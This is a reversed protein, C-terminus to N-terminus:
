DSQIIITTRLYWPLGSRWLYPLRNSNSFLNFYHLCKIMFVKNFIFPLLYKASSVCFLWLHIWFWKAEVFHWFFFNGQQGYWRKKEPWPSQNKRWQGKCQLTSVVPILLASIWFGFGVQATPSHSQQKGPSFTKFLTCVCWKIAHVVVSFMPLAM